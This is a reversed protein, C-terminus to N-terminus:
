EVLSPGSRQTAWRHLAETSGAADLNAAAEILGLHTLAQPYNGLARGDGTMQESFLDLPGVRDCLWDFARRAEDERGALVLAAVLEFSCMLFAGEGGSLGDDVDAQRYRHLLPTGEVGLERQIREMTGVIRPDDGPLFGVLPLRLLSADAVPVDYAQVFSGSEHDFGRRLVEERIDEAALRWRELDAEEDGLLEALRIGRDLCVWCMVKSNVYHRRPGRVEWIGHDPERRREAAQDVYRRLGRWEEPALAGTLQQYALAADLLHGYVDLQVQAVADNGIRVPRSDRYGALHDLTTEDLRHRGDIGILPPPRDRDAACASMLFRLYRAGEEGHGLRFLALLVLAADRYWTYRYDWNREGGVEEPLSTTPAALLAGTEDYALARLLMASRGVLRPAVTGFDGASSWQQWVQRTQDLLHEADVADVRRVPATAYGLALVLAEGDALAAEGWLRRGDSEVTHTASLWMRPGHHLWGHGAREWAAGARGYDPRLDVDVRLHAPGEARAMRVLLHEAHLPDAAAGPTHAGARMVLFDWITVTATDTQFRSELVFTGELYRRAPTGADVVSLRIAGGRDRDLIAGCVSGSDFAPVCWWEVAGDPALLAATHADSLLAYEEIAPWSM